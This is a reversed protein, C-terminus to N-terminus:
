DKTKQWSNIEINIFDVLDANIQDNYESPFSVKLKYQKAQATEFGLEQVPSNCVLENEANRSYNEDCTLVLQEEEANLSYLSIILPVLHYTKIIIKYEVAVNSIKDLDNNTISFDYEKTEGPKLDIISLELEDLSKTNFVFKAIGRDINEMTVNSNFFSYTIGCGFLIMALLLVITLLKYKLVM